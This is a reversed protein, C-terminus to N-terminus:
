GSMSHGVLVVRELGLSEIVSQVDRAFAPITWERRGKGSEGHGALDIIVVRHRPSFARVQESWYRGDCSWGHVFILAPSGSGEAHYHIPVRDASPVSGDMVRPEVPAQPMPVAPGHAPSRCGLALILAVAVTAYSRM